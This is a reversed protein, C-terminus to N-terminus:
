SVILNGSAVLAAEDTLGTVASITAIQVFNNAGGDVDVKLYSNYGNTTIEVYDTIAKTVPDYGQLLDAINIKDMDNKSFDTIVDINKFASDKTFVFTDSGAGGTLYDLGNGGYLVDNGNDGYLYDNGEGGKLTDNGDYGYLGDSGGRGDLTDNLSSGFMSHDEDTDIMNFPKRLDWVAGGDFLIKEVYRGANSGHSDTDIAVHIEDTATYRIYLNNTDTWMKVNAPLIGGTLKITDIGENANEYVMDSTGDGSRFVYTDAGLGGVLYDNGKGGDLIDNGAYGYLTDAGAFGYMKDNAPNTGYLYDNSATGNHTFPLNNLSFTTGDSFKVTEVAYDSYFHSQIIIALSNKLSIQLDDGVKKWTLDAKTFGAGLQIVDNGSFDYITDVGDGSNYIYIDNGEDGSLYDNGKGGTIKDDGKLGYIYDNGGGGNIIDNPNGGSSIGYLTDSSATGNTTYQVKTLDFSTGNAFQIKEFGGGELFQGQLVFALTGGLLINLDNYYDASRVISINSSTYSANTIKIVDIGETEGFYDLGSEYIYTDNGYGGYIYDSGAGGNLTDNGDEGYIYDNGTGGNIVDDGNGGSIYDNGGLGNIIDGGAGYSLGYMYDDNATGNQTYNQSLLDLTSGDAWKITEISGGSIFQNKILILQTTGSMLALDYDGMKKLTVNSKNYAATFQIIDNGGDDYITDTGQGTGAYIYKDDGYGGYLTDNGAGGNITDNGYGAYITDNGGKGNMIEYLDTGNMTNASDTGNVTIGAALNWITGNDFVVKEIQLVIGNSVDRTYPLIIVDNTSYKLIINDVATIKVQGPLIGGTLRITDVGENEYEIIYDTAASDGKSFIYTDDGLGGVIYDNGVGGSITDNGAHAYITDDGGFGYITDQKDSGLLSHSQDADSINLGNRLDWITGDDFVIKELMNGVNNAGTAINYGGGINIQDTGYKLYLTGISDTWLKVDAPNVGVLRLTDVGGNEQEDIYDPASAKSDGVRVYYTDDGKGGAMFDQGGLGVLFDNGSRGGLSNNFADGMILHAVDNKNIDYYVSAEIVPDKLQAYTVGFSSLTSKIMNDLATNDAASLGDFGSMSKIFAFLKAATQLRAIDTAAYKVIEARIGAVNISALKDYAGDVPNYTPADLYITNVVPTQGLLEARVKGMAMEMATNLLLNAAANGVPELSRTYTTGYYKQIFSVDRPDITTSGYPQVVGPALNTVGAWQWLITKLDSIAQTSTVTLINYKSIFAEVKDALTPNNAMAVQFSPLDGSGKVSPLAMVRASFTYDRGDYANMNNYTFWADVIKATKGDTFTVTSEQAISNGAIMYNTNTYTLNISKIGKADLTFLESSQSVGDSNVDMWIRLQSWNSDASTIFKDRNSDLAALTTFGNPSGAGNGFLENNNDITGNGNRDMALLGDTPKVWGTSERLGDNDIDWFVSAKDRESVLEIGNRNMDIVLPSITTKAENILAASEDKKYDIYDRADYIGSGSNVKEIGDPIFFSFKAGPKLPDPIVWIGGAGRWGITNDPTAGSAVIVDVGSDGAKEIIKVKSRASLVYRDSGAGGEVVFTGTGVNFVDNYKSGRVVDISYLLDTSASGDVVKGNMGEYGASSVYTFTIAKAEASYDAIDKGGPINVFTTGNVPVAKGGDLIDAGAGGSLIDDGTGGLILDNGATGVIRDNGGTGDILTVKGTTSNAVTVSASSSNVFVIRDLVTATNNGWQTTMGAKVSASADYLLSDVFSQKSVITPVTGKNAAKWTADDLNVALVKNNASLSLVGSNFKSASTWEIDKLALLAAYQVFIQSIFDNNAPDGKYGTTTIFKGLDNADDFLARIATDGFPKEGGGAGQDLASYAIIQRLIESYNKDSQLKGSVKAADMGIAKAYADDYLPKLFYQSSFKWDKQTLSDGYINMVMLAMSHLDSAGLDVNVGMSKKIVPTTQGGRLIGLSEGEIAYATIGSQSVSWPTRNGYVLQKLQENHYPGTEVVEGGPLVTQIMHPTSEYKTSAAASEFPMNDFIVANKNYVSAVLGALGGGLSHGTLSINAKKVDAGVGAVDQYFLFALEAQQSQASGAGTGYGNWLDPRYLDVPNLSLSKDDTGRYSIVKQGNYEYAVAYFGAAQDDRVNQGNVVTTGLVLSDKTITANGIASGTLTIGEEYGRNYADMSLIANMLLSNM